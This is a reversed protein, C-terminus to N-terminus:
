LITGGPTEYFGRSNIGIFRNEVALVTEHKFTIREPTNPAEEPDVDAMHALVDYGQEILWILICSTDLGGSYALLVRGKSM